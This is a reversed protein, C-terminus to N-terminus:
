CHTLAVSPLAQGLLEERRMLDGAKNRRQGRARASPRSPLDLLLNAATELFLSPLRHAPLAERLSHPRLKERLAAVSSKRCTPRPSGTTTSALGAACYGIEGEQSMGPSAWALVSCTTSRTCCLTTRLRPTAMRSKSSSPQGQAWTFTELSQRRVRPGPIEATTM